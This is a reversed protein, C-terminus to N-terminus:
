IAAMGGDVVINNGTIFGAADSALFLALEVVDDPQGLRSVLLGALLADRAEPIAFFEETAPTSIPGPSISVARIGHAAGEAAMQRTMAIIAGKTAAHAVEPTVRVGKMGAVSATNIIVGGRVALHPWAFKTAFFVLDLENRITFQWDEITMDPIPAFRAASANNYLIDIHGGSSAAEDVWQRAQEPDGLDVPAAGTMDFGAGTVLSVTERNGTENLDCGFVTAGEAAFRQAAVRGQGGATGTILAVKGELRGVVEV